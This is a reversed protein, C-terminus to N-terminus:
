AMPPNPVNFQLQKMAYNIIDVMQETEMVDSSLLMDYYTSEKIPFQKYIKKVFVVREKDVKQARKLAESKDIGERKAIRKTRMKLSGDIRVRFVKKGRHALILHAGRGVIVGGSRSIGEMVNILAHFYDLQSTKGKSFLAIVWDDLGKVVKEDLRKMLSKDSSTRQIIEDLLQDDFCEVGLQDALLHAVDAGGAGFDRSITVVPCGEVDCAALKESDFFVSKMMGKVAKLNKVPMSKEADLPLLDFDGGWM